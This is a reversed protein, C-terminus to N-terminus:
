NQALHYLHQKYNKKYEDFTNKNIEGLHVRKSPTLYEM